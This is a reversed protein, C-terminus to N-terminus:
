MVNYKSEMPWLRFYSYGNGTHAQLALNTNIGHVPPSNRTPLYPHLSTMTRQKSLIFYNPWQHKKNWRGALTFCTLTTLGGLTIREDSQRDEMTLLHTPPNKHIQVEANNTQKNTEKHYSWRLNSMEAYISNYRNRVTRSPWPIHPDPLRCNRWHCRDRSCTLLSESPKVNRAWSPSNVGVM